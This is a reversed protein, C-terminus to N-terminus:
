YASVYHGSNVASGQHILVASLDYRLESQSHESLRRGM